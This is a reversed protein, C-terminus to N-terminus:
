EDVEIERVGLELGSVIDIGTSDCSPCGLAVEQYDFRKGCGRCRGVLPIENVVLEAGEYPGGAALIEFADKLLVPEVTSGRGVDLFIRLLKAGTREAMAADVIRIMSQCISLEHV